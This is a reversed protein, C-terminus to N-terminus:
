EEDGAGGEDPRVIKVPPRRAEAALSARAEKLQEFASLARDVMEM